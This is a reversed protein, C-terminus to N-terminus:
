ASTIDADTLAHLSSVFYSSLTQITREYHIASSYVWTLVLRDDSGDCEVMIDYSVPNERLRPQPSNMPRMAVLPQDADKSGGLTSRNNLFVQPRECAGLQRRIEPDACTYRLFGYGLANDVTERVSRCLEQLGQEMGCGPEVSLLMPFKITAPGITGLLDMGPLLGIRVHYELDLRLSRKGTWRFFAHALGFLLLDNFLVGKKARIYTLVKHRLSPELRMSIRRSNVDTHRGNPMDVPLQPLRRLRMPDCWFAIARAVVSLRHTYSHLGILYDRYSVSRPRPRPRDSVIEQYARLLEGLLLTLSYRDVTHHHLSVIIKDPLGDGCRCLALSIVPGRVINLSQQARHGAEDIARHQAPPELGAMDHVAIPIEAEPLMRQAWSGDPMRHLRLRFVDHERALKSLTARLGDECIPWPADLVVTIAWDHREPAFTDLYWVQNPTLPLAEDSFTQASGQGSLRTADRYIRILETKHLNLRRRVDESMVGSPARFRLQGQELWLDVKLRELDALLKAVTM